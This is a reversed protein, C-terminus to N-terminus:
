RFRSSSTRAMLRCVRYCKASGGKSIGPRAHLSPSHAPGTGSAHPEHLRPRLGLFPILGIPNQKQTKLDAEIDEVALKNTGTIRIDTLRFRRGREVQYEIIVEHGTLAVPNLNECTEETNNPGLDPPPNSVTCKQTVEAFFYGDEQLKNRIRRAGEVIASYDINGERKVPLLERQTKESIEYNTIAVRAKPGVVGNLIIRVTNKEADREVRADELVPSLFGATILAERVRNM